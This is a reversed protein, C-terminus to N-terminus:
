YIDCQLIMIMYKQEMAFIFHHIMQNPVIATNNTGPFATQAIEGVRYWLIM